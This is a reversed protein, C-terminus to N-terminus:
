NEPLYRFFPYNKENYDFTSENLYSAFDYGELNYSSFEFDILQLKM